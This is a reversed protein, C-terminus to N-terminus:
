KTRAPPSVGQDRGEGAGSRWRGAPRSAIRSCSISSCFVGSAARSPCLEDLGLRYRHNHVGRRAERRVHSTARNPHVPPGSEVGTDRRRLHAAEGTGGTGRARDALRVAQGCRRSSSPRRPRRGRSARRRETETSSTGTGIRSRSSSQRSIPPCGANASCCPLAAGRGDTLKRRGCASSPRGRRSTCTSETRRSRTTSRSARLSFSRLAVRPPYASWVGGMSSSSMTATPRSARVWHTTRRRSSRPRAGTRPVALVANSTTDTFYVSVGDAAIANVTWSGMALVASGGGAKPVALVQSVQNGGVTYVNDADVAVPPISIFTADYLDATTGSGARAAAFVQMLSGGPDGGNAWYVQTSDVAVGWPSTRETKALTRVGGASWCVVEGDNQYQGGITRGLNTWCPGSNDATINYPATQQTAITTGGAGCRDVYGIVGDGTLVGATGLYAWYVNAGGVALAGVEGTADGLAVVPCAGADCGMDNPCPAPPPPPPGAELYPGM